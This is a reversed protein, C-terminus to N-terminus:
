FAQALQVITSMTTAPGVGITGFYINAKATAGTMAALNTDIIIGSMIGQAPAFSGAMVSPTGDSGTFGASIRNMFKYNGTSGGIFLFDPNSAAGTLFETVPSTAVVANTSTHTLAARGTIVGMEGDYGVRVLYTNTGANNSASAYMSGNNSSWFADDFTPAVPAITPASTTSTYVFSTPNGNAAFNLDFAGYGRGGGGNANNSGSILRDNTVDLIVDSMGGGVSGTGTGGQVSGICSYPGAGGINIRYVKGDASSTYVQNNWYVPSTVQAAGCFVPFGNSTYKAAANTNVGTVRHIRGASDGFFLQNGTYDLYPSAVNDTTTTYTLQFLQESTATGIPSALLTHTQTWLNTTFNYAGPTTTINNVNIAHLIPGGSASPRSEIVYLVTGDLSPVPSTATGFPLAIGFKVTPTAGAANGPCGAYANTIAIVNVATASGAQDVTFYIVDACTFTSIDSNFKAPSGVVNGYGGTRLNWDLHPADVEAVSKKGRGRIRELWDENSDRSEQARQLQLQKRVTRWNKAINRDGDPGFRAAMIRVHSWDSPGGRTSQVKQEGPEFRQTKQDGQEIRMQAQGPVSWLAAAAAM